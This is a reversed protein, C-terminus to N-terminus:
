TSASRPEFSATMAETFPLLATRSPEPIVLLMAEILHSAFQKLTPLGIGDPPMADWQWNNPDRLIDPLNFRLVADIIESLNQHAEAARKYNYQSGLRTETLRVATSIIDARRMRYVSLVEPLAWGAHGTDSNSPADQRDNFLTVIRDMAQEADEGVYLGPVADQLAPLHNFIRGGYAVVVGAHSERMRIEVAVEMLNAAAMLSSASLLLVDPQTKALMEQLRTGSINQGLYIINYGGRRMFLSLMLIGIEHYEGPACGSVVRLSRTPTPAAAMLALLKRRVINTAFHEVSVNIEGSHWREGLTILAPQIVNLCVDEVSFLSFAEGLAAEIREEDFDSAAVAIDNHLRQYSSPQPNIVSRIAEVHGNASTSQLSRLLQVAQSISMGNEVQSKLWRIMAVDRASYLRYGSDTRPPSPIGYRREWARLTAAAVDTQRAIAKVNFVPENSLHDFM